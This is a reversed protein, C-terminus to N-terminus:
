PNFVYRLGKSIAAPMVSTHTEDSFIQGAIKLNPYNHSNLKDVLEPIIESMRPWGYTDYVSVLQDIQEKLPTDTKTVQQMYKKFVAVTELGGATVFVSAPIDRNTKAWAAEWNWVDESDWYISPSCCIYRRFTGPQTLLVWVAFLGGLSCGIIAADDPDVPYATEVAPKLQKQIFKLFAPGGGPEPPDVPKDADSGAEQSFLRNSIAHSLRQSEGGPTPTYDRHRKDFISALGAEAYGVGVVFAPPVDGGLTMMRQSNMVMGFMGNADLAYIVPYKRDPELIEPRAVFIRYTEGTAESTLDRYEANNLGNMKTVNDFISM